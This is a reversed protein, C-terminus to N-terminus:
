GALDLAAKAASFVSKESGMLEQAVQKLARIGAGKNFSSGQYSISFFPNWL